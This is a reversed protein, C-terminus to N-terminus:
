ASGAKSLLRSPLPMLSAAALTRTWPHSAELLPLSRLSLLSRPRHRSTLRCASLSSLHVPTRSKPAKTCLESNVTSSKSTKCSTIVPLTHVSEPRTQELCKWVRHTFTTCSVFYPHPRWNNRCSLSLIIWFCAFVPTWFSLDNPPRCHIALGPM